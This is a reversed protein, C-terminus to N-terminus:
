KADQMCAYINKSTYSKYTITAINKTYVKTITITITFLAVRGVVLALPVEHINGDRYKISLMLFIKALDQM